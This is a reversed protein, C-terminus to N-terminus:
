FRLRLSFQANRQGSSSTIQGFNANQLASSPSGLQTKNFVNFAEGRFEAAWRETIRFTKFLSADLTSDGPNRMTLAGINGGTLSAPSAVANIDFWKDPTRGGSPAANPDKGAVVDVRCSNWVGQCRNSTLTYPRGTRISLIGNLAWGGLVHNLAPNLNAGHAKGRGVPLEYTFSTTFNHRVDWIADAYGSEWNTPDFVGTAGTLPTGSNALAHGWTYATLFQLGGSLRKELKATLGNYNGHGFSDTELGSGVYPIRRRSEATIKTDTTGINAAPNGTSQIIQHIQNNGTYALELAIHWPLERQVAVNWKQVMPNRYNMGFARFQIQAPLSFVNTAFGGSLGGPFWPNAAFLDISNLNRDTRGHVVTLNFPASEGLNPNAGQNEEGGYFIGFGMRIVTNPLASYALGFRPGFDWKDWPFM